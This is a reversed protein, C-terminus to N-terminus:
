RKLTAIQRLMDDSTQISKSNIEYARQAIIMNVMEQVVNVNSMELFGQRVFGFGNQGVNGTEPVGSANTEAFLNGGMSELGAANVFRVLQITGANTQTIGDDVTVEGTGSIFVRNANLPIAPFNQVPLGSSTTVQGNGDIKFAGDRTFARSGDSRQVEFFGDGEIAIDLQEGTETLQGQTFVKSTSVIQSGNGLEVSTPVVNGGGADGGAPKSQQYLLDQFEAKSRKFGTTNVNAINNSITNLNHQQAEMGSAASYLSLNM